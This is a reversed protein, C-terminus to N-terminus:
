QSLHVHLPTNTPPPAPSPRGEQTLTIYVQNVKKERECIVCFGLYSSLLLLLLYRPWLLRNLKSSDWEIATGRERDRDAQQPQM